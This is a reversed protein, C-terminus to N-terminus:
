QDGEMVDNVYTEQISLNGNKDFVKVPGNHFLSDTGTVDLGLYNAYHTFKIFYNQKTDNLYYDRIVGLPINKGKFKVIRYFDASDLETVPKSDKDYLIKVKEGIPYDGSAFDIVPIEVQSFSFSSFFLFLLIKISNM